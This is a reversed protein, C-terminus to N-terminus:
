HAAGRAARAARSRLRRAMRIIPIRRGLWCLRVNMEGQTFITGPSSARHERRVQSEVQALDLGHYAECEVAQSRAAQVSSISISKIHLTRVLYHIRPITRVAQNHIRGEEVDLQSLRSM